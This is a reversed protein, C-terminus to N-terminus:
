RDIKELQVTIEDIDLLLIEKTYYGSRSIRISVSDNTGRLVDYCGVSDPILNEGLDTVVRAGKLQVGREDILCVRFVQNTESNLDGNFNVCSSLLQITIIFVFVVYINKNM